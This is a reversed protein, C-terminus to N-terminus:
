HNQDEYSGYGTSFNGGTKLGEGDIESIVEDIAEEIEEESVVEMEENVFTNSTTTPVGVDEMADVIATELAFEVRRLTQPDLALVNKLTEMAAAMIKTQLADKALEDPKSPPDFGDDSENKYRAYEENIIQQLKSKKMKIKM